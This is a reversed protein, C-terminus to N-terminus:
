VWVWVEHSRDWLPTRLEDFQVQVLQLNQYFRGHLRDAYVGARM